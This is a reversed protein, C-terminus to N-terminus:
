VAPPVGLLESKAENAYSVVGGLYYPSVGAIATIMHAVM